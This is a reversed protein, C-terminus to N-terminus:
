GPQISTVADQARTAGWSPTWIKDTTPDFVFFFSNAITHTYDCVKTFQPVNSGDLEVTYRSVQKNDRDNVFLINGNFALGFPKSSGLNLTAVVSTSPLTGSVNPDLVVVKNSDEVAVYLYGGLGPIIARAYTGLSSFVQTPTADGIKFKWVGSNGSGICTSIWVTGSTSSGDIYIGYCGKFNNDTYSLVTPNVALTTTDFSFIKGGTGTSAACFPVRDSTLTLGQCSTGNNMSPGMTLGTGDNKMYGVKADNAVSNYAFNSVWIEKGTWTPDIAIGAPTHLPSGTWKDPYTLNSCGVCTNDSAKCAPTSVDCDGDKVCQVCTNDATKCAKNTAQSACGANTTCEVCSGTKCQGTSCTTDDAAVTTVCANATCATATLCDDPSCDGVVTCQVCANTATNCTKTLTESACNADATCQVCSNTETDCAKKTTEGACNADATCQVCTNSTTDCVTKKQNGACGADTTCSVCAGAKCQGGPCTADDADAVLQCLGSVCTTTNCSPPSPCDANSTCGSPLPPASLCKGGYCRLNGCCNRDDSCGRGRDICRCRGRGDSNRGRRRANCLGTCCDSNRRCANEARSSGCPGAASPGGRSRAVAASDKRHPAKARSKENARTIEDRAALGFLSGLAAGIGARRTTGSALLRAIRDFSSQDM